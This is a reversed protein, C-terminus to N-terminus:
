RAGPQLVAVDGAQSRIKAMLANIEQHRGKDALPREPRAPANMAKELAQAADKYHHQGYQFDAWFYNADIGTPNTQLAKKLYAQAKDDDGFGIPWGPVKYYLTGLSTYISGQMANPDIKEAAQLLNRAQKALGLAGLGGKAGAHSSYVIGEWILPEAREPYQRAVAEARKELGEFADARQKEPVEYNIHAWDHQIQLIAQDLPADAALAPLAFAGTLVLAALLTKMPNM